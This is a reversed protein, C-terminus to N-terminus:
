NSAVRVPGRYEKGEEVEVRIKLRGSKESGEAFKQVSREFEHVSNPEGVEEFFELGEELAKALIKPRPRDGM